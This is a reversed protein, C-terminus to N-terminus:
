KEPTDTELGKCIQGNDVSIDFFTKDSDVPKEITDAMTTAKIERSSERGHISVYNLNTM